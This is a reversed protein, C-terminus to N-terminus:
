NRQQLNTISLVLYPIFLCVIRNKSAKENEPEQERETEGENIVENEDTADIWKLNEIEEDEDSHDMKLIIKLAVNQKLALLLRKKLDIIINMREINNKTLKGIAISSAKPTLEIKNKLYAANEDPNMEDRKDVKRCTKIHRGHSFKSSQTKECYPCIWALGMHKVRQHNTLNSKKSFSKTCQDCPFIVNDNSNAVKKKCNPKAGRKTANASKKAIKKKAKRTHVMKSRTIEFNEFKDGNGGSHSTEPM